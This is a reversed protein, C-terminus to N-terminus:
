VQDRREIDRVRAVVEIEAQAISEAALLRRARPHAATQNAPAESKKCGTLMLLSALAIAQTKFIFRNMVKEESM